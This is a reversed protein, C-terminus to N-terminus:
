SHKTVHCRYARELGKYESCRPNGLAEQEEPSPLENREHKHHSSSRRTSLSHIWRTTRIRPRQRRPGTSELMEIYKNETSRPKPQRKLSITNMTNKHNLHQFLKSPPHRTTTTTTYRCKTHGGATPTPYRFVRRPQKLLRSESSRPKPQRRSSIMKTDTMTRMLSTSPLLRRQPFLYTGSGDGM